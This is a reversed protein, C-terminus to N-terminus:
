IYILLLYIQNDKEAILLSTHTFTPSIVAINIIGIKIITKEIM